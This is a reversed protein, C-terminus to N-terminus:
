AAPGSNNRKCGKLSSKSTANVLGEFASFSKNGSLLQTILYRLIKSEFGKTRKLTYAFYFLGPGAPIEAEKVM